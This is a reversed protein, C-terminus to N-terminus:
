SFCDKHPPTWWLPVFLSFLRMESLAESDHVVFEERVRKTGWLGSDASSGPYGSHRSSFDSRIQRSKPGFVFIQNHSRRATLAISGMCVIAVCACVARAGLVCCLYWGQCNQEQSQPFCLTMLARLCHLRPFQRVPGQSHAVLRSLSCVSIHHHCHLVFICLVLIYFPLVSLTSCTFSYLWINPRGTQWM